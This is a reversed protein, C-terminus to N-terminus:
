QLKRINRRFDVCPKEAAQRKSQLLDDVNKRFAPDALARELRERSVTQCCSGPITRSNGAPGSRSNQWVGDTAHNWSWRLDLALEALSDFGAIETPLLNYMPHSARTPHNAGTQDTM